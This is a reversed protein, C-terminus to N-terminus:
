SHRANGEFPVGLDRARKPQALLPAALLIVTVLHRM